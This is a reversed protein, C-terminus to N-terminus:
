FNEILTPVIKSSELSGRRVHISATQNMLEWLNAVLIKGVLAADSRFCPSGVLLKVALIGVQDDTAHTYVAVQGGKAQHQRLHRQHIPRLYYILSFSIM